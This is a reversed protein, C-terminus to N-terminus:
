VPIYDVQLLQYDPDISLNFIDGPKFWRKDLLNEWAKEMSDINHHEVMIRKSENDKHVFTYKIHVKNM